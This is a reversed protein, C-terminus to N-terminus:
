LGEDEMMAAIGDEDDGLLEVLGAKLMAKDPDPKAGPPCCPCTMVDLVSNGFQYGVDKFAQRHNNDLRKSVPLEFWKRIEVQSLTTEYIADRRLYMQDWPENCASCHVNM